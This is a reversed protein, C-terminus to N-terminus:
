GSCRFSMAMQVSIRLAMQVAKDKRAAIYMCGLVCTQASQVTCLAQWDCDTSARTAGAHGRRVQPDQQWGTRGHFLQWAM